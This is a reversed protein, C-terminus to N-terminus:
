KTVVATLLIILFIAIVIGFGIALEKWSLHALAHNLDDGGGHFVSPIQFISSM